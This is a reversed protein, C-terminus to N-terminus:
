DIKISLGEERRKKRMKKLGQGVDHHQHHHQEEDVGDHSHLEEPVDREVRVRGNLPVVVESM